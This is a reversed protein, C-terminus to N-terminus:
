VGPMPPSFGKGRGRGRGGSGRGSSSGRGRGASDDGDGGRGRGGRGRGTSGRGTAGRGGRGGRGGAGRGSNPAFGRGPAPPAPKYKTVKAGPKWEGGYFENRKGGDDDGDDDGDRANSTSGGWDADDAYEDDYEDANVDDLAHSYIDKAIETIGAGTSTSAMMVTVKARKTYRLEEQILYARRALDNPNVSDCKNLIVQCATEGYKSLFALMERDSAKLGHRADVVIYVRKLNKRSTLYKDM